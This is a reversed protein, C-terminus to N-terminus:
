LKVHLFFRLAAKCIRILALDRGIALDRGAIAVIELRFNIKLVRLVHTADPTQCQCRVM